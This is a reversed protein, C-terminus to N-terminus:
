QSGANYVYRGNDDSSGASLKQGSFSALTRPDEEAVM